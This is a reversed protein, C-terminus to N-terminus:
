NNLLQQLEQRIFERKESDQEQMLVKANNHFFSHIDSPILRLVKRAQSINEPQEKLEFNIDLMIPILDDMSNIAINRNLSLTKLISDCWGIFNEIRGQKLEIECLFLQAKMSKPQLFLAREFFIRAEDLRGLQLSIEGLHIWSDASQPDVELAKTFMEIARDFINQQKYVVGATFLAAFNSPDLKIVLDTVKLAKELEGSELRLTALRNLIMVDQNGLAVLKELCQKEERYLGSKKNLKALMYWVDQGEPSEELAANLYRRALNLDQSKDMHFCGANWWVQWKEDAMDYASRYHISMLDYNKITHHAHGMLLHISPGEKMTNNVVLGAQDPHDEFRKLL